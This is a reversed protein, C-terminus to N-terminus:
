LDGNWEWSTENDMPETPTENFIKESKTRVWENVKIKATQLRNVLNEIQWNYLNIGLEKAEVGAREGNCFLDRELVELTKGWVEGCQIRNKVTKGWRVSDPRNRKGAISNVQLKTDNALSTLKRPRNVTNWM